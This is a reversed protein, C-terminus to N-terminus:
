SLDNPLEQASNNQFKKYLATVAEWNVVKLFASIYESRRNQYQLYYAHEWVDICLLPQHGKTLPSDLDQTSIIAMKKSPNLTLWTWGSGFTNMAAKHLQDELEEHSGFEGRIDYLLKGEPKMGTPPGIIKWLLSHNLHGKVNYQIDARIEEPFLDLNKLITEMSLRNFQSDKCAIRNLNDVYALHHKHYHIEITERSIYPELAHSPYSLVPLSFQSKANVEFSLFSCLTATQIMKRRTFLENM